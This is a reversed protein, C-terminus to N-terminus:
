REGNACPIFACGSVPAAAFSRWRLTASIVKMWFCTISRTTTGNSLARPILVLGVAAALICGGAARRQPVVRSLVVYGSVFLTFQFVGYLFTAMVANRTLFMLLATVVVDPFLCPAISFKIGSLPFGDVVVDKYVDAAFLYDSSFWFAFTPEGAAALRLYLVAFALGLGAWYLWQPAFRVAKM